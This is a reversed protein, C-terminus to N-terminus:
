TGPTYIANWDNVKMYLLQGDQVLEPDALSNHSQVDFLFSGPGFQGSADIIGSSEEDRTKLLPAGLAYLAPDHTAVIGKQGTNINYAVIKSVHNNNGPDEQILLNGLKDIALNDPMSLYPDTETGDLLLELTGGLEPKNVNVFTYKWLGGGDRPTGAPDSPNAATGGGGTTIFFLENRNNPNFEGDEIRNLSLGGAKADANQASGSKTWDIEQLDAPVAVGKGYKARFQADNSVTEDLLDIVHPTGNKLGARAAPTGSDTKEGSYIWLQAGDSPGDELGVAVTRTKTTPAIVTNEWSALGLRPLQEADGATTVAFTRGTDGNEENAMYLQGAYGVGDGSGDASYRLLFQGPYSLYASCFRSFASTWGAPASSQYSSTTYDYYKVTPNILDKGNEVRFTNANIQFDSVFAGKEGHRRVTGQTGGIEQNQFVRFKGNFRPTAGLGDPVGVMRFPAGGDRNPVGDGVTLLSKIDTSSQLPLVYPDTTTSPGRSTGAMAPSAVAATLALAAGAVLPISRRM